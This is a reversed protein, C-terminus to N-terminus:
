KLGKIKELAFDVEVTSSNRSVSVNRHNFYYTSAKTIIKYDGFSLGSFSYSGDGLSTTTFKDARMHM